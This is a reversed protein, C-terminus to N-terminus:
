DRRPPPPTAPPLPETSPAPPAPVLVDNAPPLPERVPAPPVPAAADKVPEKGAAPPTSPTDPRPQRRNNNRQGPQDPRRRIIEEGEEVIKARKPLRRTMEKEEEEIKSERRPRDLPKEPDLRNGPRPNRMEGRLQELERLISEIRRELRELRADRDPGAGGGPGGPGPAMGIPGGPRGQDASGAARPLRGPQGSPPEGSPAMPAAGPPAMGPRRGAGGPARDRPGDGGPVRIETGPQAEIRRLQRGQGDEIIIVAPRSERTGGIKDRDGGRRGEMEALRARREVLRREVQSIQEHMRKLEAELKRLEDRTREMEERQGTDPEAEKVRGLPQNPQPRDQAWTPLLPLLLAGAGLVTLFGAWSLRRPTTGRMIMTLRRRLDHVHGVGSAAAPLPPRAESLFDLTEVLALAYARASRPLAWVVWADCCQEEAEHVERRAWWVVPHWWHLCTTVIQLLRVWHDGRKWHALEHLLLAARQDENLAPWLEAPVLLRPTGDLTWLMPSVRGPVLWVRPNDNLGLRRALRRAEHQLASPGLHAHRLLLQFRWTRWGALLLWALSGAIWCAGILATWPLAALSEFLAPSLVPASVAIPKENRSPEPLPDEDPAFEPRASLDLAPAADAMPELPDVTEENAPTREVIPSIDVRMTDPAPAPIVTELEVSRLPPTILKVLVLLWLAHTLAPRRVIRSVIVVAIALVTAAVANSLGLRLLADV